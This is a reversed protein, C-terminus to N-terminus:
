SENKKEGTIRAIIWEAFKSEALYIINYATVGSLGIIADRYRIDTDLTTGVIYAVFAGLVINVLMSTFQFVFEDDGNRKAKTYDFLYAVLGGVVGLLIDKINSVIFVLDQSTM